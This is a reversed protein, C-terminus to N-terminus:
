SRTVKVSRGWRSYSFKKPIRLFNPSDM